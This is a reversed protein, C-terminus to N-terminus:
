KWNERNGTCDRQGWRSYRTGNINRFRLMTWFQERQRRLGDQYEGIVTGKTGTGEAAEGLGM